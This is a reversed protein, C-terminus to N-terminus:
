AACWGRERLERHVRPSGYTGRGVKYAARIKELLERNAKSRESEPRERWQYYGSTSVELVRCMVTVPFVERHAEIFGFIM